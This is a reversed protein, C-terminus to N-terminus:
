NIDKKKGKRTVEPAFRFELTQNEMKEKGWRKGMIWKVKMKFLQM